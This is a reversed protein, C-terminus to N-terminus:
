PSFGAKGPNNRAQVVQFEMTASLSDGQVENGTVEPLIWGLGFYYTISGIMRGDPALGPCEDSLAGDGSCQNILYSAALGEWINHTEGGEDITGETILTPEGEQQKNDGEQLDDECEAEGPEGPNPSCQFGNVLGEDLWINFLLNERLEGSDVVNKILFQGWADNSYVHLSITNEGEDGPKIDDFNFFTHVGPTLDSEVWNGFAAGEGCGVDNDDLFYHCESDIRLDLSGATFTNGSSTEIDSFFAFTAGGILALAALISIGSFAIKRNVQRVGKDKPCFTSDSPASM